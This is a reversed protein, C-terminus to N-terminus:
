WNQGEALALEGDGFEGHGHPAVTHREDVHGSQGLDGGSHERRHAVGPTEGRGLGGHQDTRTRCQAPVGVVLEGEDMGRHHLVQDGGFDGSLEHCRGAMGIAEERCPLHRLQHGVEECVQGVPVLRRAPGLVGDVIRVRGRHCLRVRQHDRPPQVDWQPRSRLQGVGIEGAVVEGAPVQAAGVQAPRVEGVGAEVM